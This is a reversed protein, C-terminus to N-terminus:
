KPASEKRKPPNLVDEPTKIDPRIHTMPVCQYEECACAPCKRLDQEAASLEVERGCDICVYKGPGVREGAKRVEPREAVM